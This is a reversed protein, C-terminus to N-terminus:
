LSSSGKIGTLATNIKKLGWTILLAGGVVVIFWVCSMYFPQEHVYLFPYPGHMVRLANLTITVAAYLLTPLLALLLHKNTLVPTREFLLFSVLALVPCLFHMYLMGESLMLFRLGGKERAMPSLVFIVILLTITLMCVAAYSLVRVRTHPRTEGKRLRLIGDTVFVASVLLELLNSLQTYYVLERPIPYPWFAICELIFLAAHICVAAAFRKKESM